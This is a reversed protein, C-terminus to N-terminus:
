VTFLFLKQWAPTLETGRNNANGRNRVMLSFSDRKDDGDTEDRHIKLLYALETSAVKRKHSTNLSIM